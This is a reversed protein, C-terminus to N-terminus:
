YGRLIKVEAVTSCYQDMVLNLETEIKMYDVNPGGGTRGPFYDNALITIEIVNDGELIDFEDLFVYEQFDITPQNDGFVVVFKKVLM